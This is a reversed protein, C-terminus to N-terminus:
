NNFNKFWKLVGKLINNTENGDERLILPSSTIVDENNVNPLHTSYKGCTHIFAKRSKVGAENYRCAICSNKRM